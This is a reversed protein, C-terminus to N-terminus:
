AHQMISILYLRSADTTVFKPTLAATIDICLLVEKLPRPVTYACFVRYTMMNINSKTLIQPIINECFSM